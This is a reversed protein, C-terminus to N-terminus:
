GRLGIMEDFSLDDTAELIANIERQDDMDDSPMEKVIQLANKLDDLTEKVYQSEAVSVRDAIIDENAMERLFAVEHLFTARERRFKDVANEIM